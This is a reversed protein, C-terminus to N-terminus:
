ACVTAKKFAEVCTFDQWKGKWKMHHGNSLVIQKTKTKNNLVKHGEPSAIVKISFLRTVTLTRYSKRMERHPPRTQLTHNHYKRIMSLQKETTEQQITPLKNSYYLM